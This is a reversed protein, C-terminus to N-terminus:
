SDNDIDPFNVDSGAYIEVGKARLAAKLVGEYYNPVCDASGTREGAAAFTIGAAAGMWFESSSHTLHMVYFVDALDPPSDDDRNLIWRNVLRYKEAPTLELWNVKHM